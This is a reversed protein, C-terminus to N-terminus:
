SVPSEGPAMMGLINFGGDVYIIEGTIGRGLSSVLFLATDGVEGQETARRLPAFEKHLDVMKTIGSVGRAALTKIPGASIANVRINKPGLDYALYRVTCELAAKAVGMVNYHPVVREAGLYTLTVISGGETMLPMAARAVAVLSYASVDLATAFGQRTTNVFQGTLEERPAFALSHVLFDLRGFEKEVQQMLSAIETDSGVDCAYARAGPVTAALEEVNQRLRENQYNFLLKAGQSAVSQAIAWAISHKNAVGIILGKKGSLLM